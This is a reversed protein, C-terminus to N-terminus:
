TVTESAETAGTGVVQGKEIINMRVPFFTLNSQEQQQQGPEEGYDGPFPSMFNIWLFNWKFMLSAKKKSHKHDSTSDGQGIQSKLAETEPPQGSLM